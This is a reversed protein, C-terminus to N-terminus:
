LYGGVSVVCYDGTATDTQVVVGDVKLTATLRIYSETGGDNQVYVSYYEGEKADHITRKWPLSGYSTSSSYDDLTYSIDIDPDYDSIFEPEGVVELEVDYTEPMDISGGGGESYYDDLDFNSDYEDNQNFYPLMSYGALAISIVAIIILVFLLPSVSSKKPSEKIEDEVKNHSVNEKKKSDTIIEAEEFDFKCYPCIVSDIPIKRGCKSCYREDKQADVVM